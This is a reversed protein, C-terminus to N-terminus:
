AKGVGTAPRPKAVSLRQSHVQRHCTPHLLVRNAVGDTGGDTGGHSRWVLHHTHWGSRTTIQQHCVPCLGRQDKWLALLQRRGMLTHEMLTHEMLTHEMLTHEMLTHERRVGLRQEFYVEWAPDSPNAAAQIKTHRQIPVDVAAVLRVQRVTGDRGTLRAAFIWERTPTTRFSRKKVWRAGKTPHRRRAWRWRRGLIAHTVRTCTRRSVVQRHYRAWGRILPNLRLILEGAPAQQHAKVVARVTELFAKVNKPSPTILLKEQRGQRYQRGTQGLFDFGDEIRTIRTKEQSLELGREGRFPEV